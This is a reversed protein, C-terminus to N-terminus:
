LTELEYWFDVTLPTIRMAGPFTTSIPTHEFNAIWDGAEQINDRKEWMLTLDRSMYQTIYRQAVDAAREFSSYVGLLESRQVVSTDGDGLIRQLVYITAM